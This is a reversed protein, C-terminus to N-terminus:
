GTSFSWPDAEARSIRLGFGPIDDDWFTAEGKGSPLVASEVTKKNIKMALGELAPCCM